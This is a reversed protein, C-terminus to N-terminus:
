MGSGSLAGAPKERSPTAVTWGQLFMCDSFLTVLQANRDKDTMMAQPHIYRHIDREAMDQCNDRQALYDRQVSSQNACAALLLLGSIMMIRMM